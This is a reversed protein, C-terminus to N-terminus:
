KKEEIKVANVIGHQGPRSVVKALGLETEIVAGKTIIGMRVFHINAPNEKVHLIKTVQAKGTSIDFVNAKDVQLLRQKNNNSLGRILKKRQEGIRVPIFDSGFDRKKKKRQKKRLGGTTKRKGMYKSIAM